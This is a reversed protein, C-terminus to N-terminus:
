LIARQRHLPLTGAQKYVLIDSCTLFLVHIAIALPAQFLVILPFPHFGAMSLPPETLLRGGVGLYNFVLVLYASSLDYLGLSNWFWILQRNAKLGRTHVIWAIPLSTAGILIDLILTQIGLAKPVQGRLYPVLLSAGDIRYVHLAILAWLPAKLIMNRVSNKTQYLTYLIGLMLSPLGILVMLGLCDRPHSWQSQNQFISNSLSLFVSIVWWVTFFLWLTQERPLTYITLVVITVISAIPVLTDFLGLDVM